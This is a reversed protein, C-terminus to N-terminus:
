ETTPKPWSLIELGVVNNNEDVDVNVHLDAIVRVAKNKSLRLYALGIDKTKHFQLSLEAEITQKTRKEYSM